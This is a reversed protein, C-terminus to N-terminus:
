VDLGVPTPVGWVLIANAEATRPLEPLFTAGPIAELLEERSFSRFEPPSIWNCTVYGRPTHQLIRELYQEQVDRRLESFAYNSIALDYEAAEDALEDARVFRAGSVGLRELYKQQLSSCEALDVLTYAAPSAAAHVVFCQGGYGCGIEVIRMGDLRGFLRQLDSLVKVYRLTTPSFRGYQGYACTQPSGLRDNARFRDFLEVLEPSDSALRELYGAGRECTVHELVERYVPERKFRAFVRDDSAARACFSTYADHDTISTRLEAPAEASPTHGVRSRAALRRRLRTLTPVPV